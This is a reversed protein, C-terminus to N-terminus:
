NTVGITIKMPRVRRQAGTVTVTTGVTSVFLSPARTMQSQEALMPMSNEAFERGTVMSLFRFLLYRFGKRYPAALVIVLISMTIGSQMAIMVNIWNFVNMYTNLWGGELMLTHAFIVWSMLVVPIGAVALLFITKIVIQFFLVFHMKRTRQSMIKRVRMLTYLTRLIIYGVATCYSFLYVSIAWVLLNQKEESQFTVITRDVHSFKVAIGEAALRDQLGDQGTISMYVLIVIVVNSLIMSSVDYTTFIYKHIKKEWPNLLVYMRHYYCRYNARLPFSIGFMGIFPFYLYSIQDSIWACISISGVFPVNEAYAFYPCYVVVLVLELLCHALVHEILYLRYTSLTSPTFVRLIYASLLASAVARRPARATYIIM